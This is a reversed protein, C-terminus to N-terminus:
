SKYMCCSYCSYRAGSETLQIGRGNRQFLPFGLEKEMRIIQQSVASQSMFLSNAAELFSECETVRLFIEMQRLNM